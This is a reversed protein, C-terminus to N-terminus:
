EIDGLVLIDKTFTDIINQNDTVELTVQYSGPNEFTHSPRRDRSTDGDGFDWRYITVPGQSCRPDFAVTLPAYGSDTSADFCATLDVPRVNIVMEASDSKGDATRVTVTPTFNGISEYKYTIQSTGIKRPSGDGFNWEYSVIRSGPATSGSADFTVTLPASGEVNDADIRATVGQQNVNVVMVAGSENGAADTVNLSANYVGPNQYIYKVTEGNADFTGDGDFDWQYEVINNDPDTSSAGSFSVEFPVTGTIGTEEGERAPTSDIIARPAGEKTEIEITEYSTSSVGEEDTVTLAVEYTGIEEYTHTATRTNANQSGDGFNWAYSEIAGNPSTSDQGQFTISENVYYEGTETPINIVAQPANEGQVEITMTEIDSQGTNDTVRLSVEYEGEREFTYEATAGEADRFTNTGSFDWDYRVINGAPSSSESGDFNVTLPAPGSPPDATFSADVAVNAITVDKTFTQTSEEGSSTERATVDLTVTYRGIDNFTHTVKPVTSTEGDGFDWEYTLIEYNSPTNARIGASDFVVEFPATQQLTDEPETIIEANLTNDRQVRIEKGQLYLNVMVWVTLMIIFVGFSIAAKKINQTRKIKDAKPAMAASFGFIVTTLFIIITIGGLIVNTLTILSNTFEAPDAGLLLALSNDGASTQSVFILVFAIFLILAFVIFGLCGFVLKKPDSPKRRNPAGRRQQQANAGLQGPKNSQGSQVQGQNQQNPQQNQAQAQAPQPQAQQNAPQQNQTQVQAQQPQQQSQADANNQVTRNLPAAQNTGEQSSSNSIQQQINQNDSGSAVQSIPDQSSPQNQMQPEPPQTQPQSQRNDPQNNGPMNPQNTQM